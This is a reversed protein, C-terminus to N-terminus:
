LHKRKSNCLATIFQKDLETLKYGTRYILVDKYIKKNDVCKKQVLDYKDLLEKPVPSVWMFTQPNRSLLDFQSAREFVFIRQDVKDPLEERFVKSM